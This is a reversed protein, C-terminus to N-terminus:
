YQFKLDGKVESGNHPIKKLFNIYESPIGSEEAGKIMTELYAPTPRREEPLNELNVDDANGVQRYCRCQLVKGEPTEVDVTIPYYINAHVGEQRDLSELDENKIEWIAGWVHSGKKPVITGAYGKWIKSYAVFDIQYDNLKGIGYRVANPNCVHMRNTSLNSGFAFYLIKGCMKVSLTSFTLTLISSIKMSSELLAMIYYHSSQM